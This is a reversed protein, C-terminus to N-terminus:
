LKRKPSTVPIVRLEGKIEGLVSPQGAASLLTLLEDNSVTELKAASNSNAVLCRENVGDINGVSVFPSRPEVPALATGNAIRNESNTTLALSWAVGAIALVAAFAVGKAIANRQQRKHHTSVLEDQLQGLMAQKRVEGEQSLFSKSERRNM